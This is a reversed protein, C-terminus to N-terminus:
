AVTSVANASCSLEAVVRALLSIPLIAPRKTVADARARLASDYAMCDYVILDPQAAAMRSAAADIDAAASKPVLPVVTLNQFGSARWRQMAATRQEPLPVYIGLRRDQGIAVALQTHLRSAFLVPLSHLEPFEGTCCMAVWECGEQQLAQVVSRARTSIADHSVKVGVGSPLVTFLTDEACTPALCSIEELSLGDLVGRLVINTSAPLVRRFEDVLDPRPSQGIVLVGLMRHNQM